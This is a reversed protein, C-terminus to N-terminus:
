YKAKAALARLGATVGHLSVPIAVESGDLQAFSVKLTKGAQMAQRLANPLPFLALCGDARCHHLPIRQVEGEDVRLALGPEVLIGLPLRIMVLPEATEPISQVVFSLVPAEDAGELYVRQQLVCEGSSECYLAWDRFSEAHPASADAVPAAQLGLCACLFIAGMRLWRCYRQGEVM